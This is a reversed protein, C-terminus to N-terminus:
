ISCNAFDPSMNQFETIEAVDAFPGLKTAVVSGKKDLMVSFPMLMDHNGFAETLKVGDELGAIYHDMRFGEEKFYKSAAKANDIAIAVVSGDCQENAEDLLPLEHRCPPCWTAWFNVLFSKEGYPLKAMNGDNDVLEISKSVEIHGDSANANTPGKDLLLGLGLGAAILAFAALALRAFRM